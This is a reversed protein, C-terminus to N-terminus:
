VADIKPNQCLRRGMTFRVGVKYGQIDLWVTPIREWWKTALIKLNDINGGKDISAMIKVVQNFLTTMAEDAGPM